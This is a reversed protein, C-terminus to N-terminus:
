TNKAQIQEKREEQKTKYMSYIGILSLPVVVVVFLIFMEM